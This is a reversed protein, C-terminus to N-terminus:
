APSAWWVKQRDACTCDSFFICSLQLRTLGHVDFLAVRMLGSPLMSCVCYLASDTFNVGYFPGFGAVGTQLGPVEFSLTQAPQPTCNKADPFEVNCNTVSLGPFSQCPRFLIPKAGAHRSAFERLSATALAELIRRTRCCPVQKCVRVCLMERSSM